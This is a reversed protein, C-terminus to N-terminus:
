ILSIFCIQFCCLQRVDCTEVNLHSIAGRLVSASNDGQREGTIIMQQGGLHSEAVVDGGGRVDPCIFERQPTM